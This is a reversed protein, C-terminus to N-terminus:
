VSHVVIPPNVAARSAINLAANLKRFLAISCNQYLLAISNKAYKGNLSLIFINKHPRVTTRCEPSNYKIFELFQTVLDFSGYLRLQIGSPYIGISGDGDIVGRWFHRNFLLCDPAKAILSKNPIVNNKKLDNVIKLSRISFRIADNCLISTFSHQSKLFSKFKILHEKDKKNLVLSIEPSGDHRYSINGDAMLFGIWYASEETIHDFANEDFYYKRQAQSQNRIPINRRKLLGLIAVHSVKFKNGLIVSGIGKQYSDCVEKIEEKSLKNM